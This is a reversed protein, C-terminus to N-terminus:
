QVTIPYISQSFLCGSADYNYITEKEPEMIKTKMYLTPHWETTITRADPSAFAETRSIEQGATDYNVKTKIGKWDTKSAIWSKLM